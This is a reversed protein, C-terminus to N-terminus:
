SSKSLPKLGGKQKQEVWKVVQNTFFVMRSNPGSRFYPLGKPVLANRVTWASCHLLAAVEDISLPTGLPTPPPVTQRPNQRPYHQGLRGRSIEKNRLAKGRQQNELNRTAM